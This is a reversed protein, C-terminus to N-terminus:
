SQHLNALCWQAIDKLEPHELYARVENTLPYINLNAIVILANRKLGRAGSRILATDKLTKLIQKGSSTLIFRLESILNEDVATPAHAKQFLSSNKFVKQNWPCVTQCIDCGFFHGRFQAALELPPNTKSEITWYSICKKSDITKNDHIASTPCQDICRTCTGCFDPLPDSKESPWTVSTVINGLLFLSGKKPHILCSNKGIWGLRNQYSFDRELIPFSDTSSMFFDNPYQSKLHGVIKELKEKLWHHYDKDQAYLAVKLNSFPFEHNETLSRYPHALSIISAATAHIHKLDRKIELHRRLYDMEGHYNNEIWRVYHDWSLPSTIASYGYHSFGLSLILEEIPLNPKM